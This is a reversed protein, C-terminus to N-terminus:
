AGFYNILRQALISGFFLAVLLLEGMIQTLLSIYYKVRNLM